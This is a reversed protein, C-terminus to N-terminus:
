IGTDQNGLMDNAARVRSISEQRGLVALTEFMGPTVTKGSVAIRVPQLFKGLKLEMKEAAERLGNDLSAIDFKALGEMVAAACRLAAAAKQDKRLKALAKEEFQVPLFFFDTMEVFEALTKIKEQVLPVLDAIAPKGGNGPLGKLRTGGIYKEIHGALELPDMKRIYHGNMWVLKDSDFIAATGGVRELSFKGVLDDTSFLTTEGDYSWGLLALYNRLAEPVFGRSRFEDVSVDGHRKSLPARDPGLILPLHAYVPPNEGLAEMLLLQRPTNPLHDDGRIVHSIKMAADDIAAAFNYTPAGSSRVLIFDGLQANDFEVDGRIIDHVVTKGSDPTKLRVAPRRGEAEFMRAESEPLGRCRGQYVVPRGEARARAREVDLEAPTCYCLFANGEALLRRAAERYLGARQTQRYPGYNGGAEPGEDWDLGLWRLSDIIQRVAEDTSRVQDTDELRLVFVGGQGCAFLWNYLATRAGGIHLHGTPSPAFRVRVGPNDEEKKDIM